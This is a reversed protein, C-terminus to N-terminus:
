YRENGMMERISISDSEAPITQRCAGNQRLQAEHHEKRRSQKREKKHMWCIIGILGLIVASLTGGVAGGVV